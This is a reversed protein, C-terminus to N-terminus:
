YDEMESVVISYECGSGNTSKVQKEVIRCGAADQAVSTADVCDEAEAISSFIKGDCLDLAKSIDLSPAVDASGMLECATQGPLINSDVLVFFSGISSKGCTEEEATVAIEYTAGCKALEDSRTVQPPTTTTLTAPDTITLTAPDTTTGTTPNANVQLAVTTVVVPYCDDVASLYCKVCEQATAVTDFVVGGCRAKVENFSIVPDYRDEDCEDPQLSEDCNNDIGDCGHGPLLVVVPRCLVQFFIDNSRDMMKFMNKHIVQVHEWEDTDIQENTGV